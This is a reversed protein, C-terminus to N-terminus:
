FSSLFPFFHKVKGGHLQVIEKCISLGVGTGKGQQTANSNIQMYTTFLSNITEPPIGEGQDIVTFTVCGKIKDGYSVM